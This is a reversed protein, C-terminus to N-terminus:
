DAWNRQDREGIEVGQSRQTREQGLAGKVIESSQQLRWRGREKGELKEVLLFPPQQTKM